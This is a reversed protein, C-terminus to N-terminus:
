PSSPNLLAQVGPHGPRLRQVQRAHWAAASWDGLRHRYRAANLHATVHDPNRVLVREVAALAGRLDGARARLVGQAIEAADLEPDLRLALEVLPQAQPQHRQLYVEALRLVARAGLTRLVPEDPLKGGPESLLAAMHDLLGSPDAPLNDASGLRFLPVGLSFPVPPAEEPSPEWGVRHPAREVLRRLLAPAGHVQEAEPQARFLNVSAADLWRSDGRALMRSIYAGDWLFQRVLVTVDPRDGAVAQEYLLLASLDDSQTLALGRPPLQDLAGRAWRLPLGSDLGLKTTRDSLTAPLLALLALPLALWPTVVRGVAWGAAVSLGLLCPVGNQLDRLGMPNIWAAYLSDGLVVVLLALGIPRRMLGVLGALGLIAAPGLQSGVQHAFATLRHTLRVLDPTLIESRYADRIRAATLHRLLGEVTHTEAWTAMTERAARLPLYALVLAGLFFLAPGALVWRQRRLLHWTWVGGLLPVLMRLSAHLGLGLGCLFALAAAMAQCRDSHPGGAPLARHLLWLGLALAAATPAYVEAVTAAKFTTTTAALLGSAVVGGLLASGRRARPAQQLLEATLVAVTACAAAGCLASLFSLRTAVEGLPLLRALQGLLCYLPFGTEHAVGLLAAATTLEGSDRLYGWPAMGQVFAGLTLLFVIVWLAPAHM